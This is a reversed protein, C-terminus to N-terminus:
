RVSHAWIATFVRGISWNANAWLTASIRVLPGNCQVHADCRNTTIIPPHQSNSPQPNCLKNNHQKSERPNATNLKHHASCVIIFVYFIFLYISIDFAFLDTAACPKSQVLLYRQMCVTWLIAVVLSADDLYCQGWEVTHIWIKNVTSHQNATM